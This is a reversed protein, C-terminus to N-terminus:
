HKAHERKRHPSERKSEPGRPMINVSPIGGLTGRREHECKWATTTEGHGATGRRVQDGKTVVRTLPRRKARRDGRTAERHDSLIGQNHMRTCNLAM